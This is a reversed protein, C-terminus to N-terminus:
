DSFSGGEFLNEDEFIDNLKNVSKKYNNWAEIIEPREKKLIPILREFDTFRELDEKYQWFYQLDFLDRQTIEEKNKIRAM